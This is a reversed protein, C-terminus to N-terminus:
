ELVYLFRNLIKFCAVPKVVGRGLFKCNMVTDDVLTV